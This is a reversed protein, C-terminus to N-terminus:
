FFVRVIFISKILGDEGESKGHLELMSSISYKTAQRCWLHGHIALLVILYILGCKKCKVKSTQALRLKSIRQGEFMAFCSNKPPIRQCHQQCIRNGDRPKQPQM